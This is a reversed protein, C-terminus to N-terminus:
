GGVIKQVRALQKRLRRNERVLGAVAQTAAVNVSATAARRRRYARKPKGTAESIETRVKENAM